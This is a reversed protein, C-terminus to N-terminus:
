EAFKRLDIQVSTSSKVRKLASTDAYTVPVDGLPMYVLEKHTELDYDEPLVKVRIVEEQPVTVFDLLNEPQNNRISYLGNESTVKDPAKQVVHVVGEVIDDVYTFGRKSSGYNFVQITKGERLKNTFSFRPPRCPWISHLVM